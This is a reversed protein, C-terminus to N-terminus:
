LKVVEVSYIFEVGADSLTFFLKGFSVIDGTLLQKALKVFFEMEKPLLLCRSCVIAPVFLM